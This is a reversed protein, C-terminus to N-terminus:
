GNISIEGMERYRHFQTYVRSILVRTYIKFFHFFGQVFLFFGVPVGFDLTIGGVSEMAVGWEVRSEM